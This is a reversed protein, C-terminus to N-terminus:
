GEMKKLYEDVKDECFVVNCMAVAFEANDEDSIKEDQDIKFRLRMELIDKDRQAERMRKVLSVFEQYEIIRQAFSKVPKCKCGEM